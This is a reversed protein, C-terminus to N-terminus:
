TEEPGRMGASPPQCVNRVGPLDPAYDAVSATDAAVAVPVTKRTM